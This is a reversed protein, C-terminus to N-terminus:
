ILTTLDLGGYDLLFPGFGAHGYLWQDVVDDPWALCKVRDTDLFEPLGGGRVRPM